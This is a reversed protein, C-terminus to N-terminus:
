HVSHKTAGKSQLNQLFFLFLVILAGFISIYAFSLYVKNGYFHM